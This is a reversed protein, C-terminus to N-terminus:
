VNNRRKFNLKGKKSIKKFKENYWVQNSSSLQIYKDTKNPEIFLEKKFKGCKLFKFGEINNSKVYDKEYGTYICIDYIDKYNLLFQRTFDLNNKYLPDGGLLVIKNTKNRKLEDVIMLNLDEYSTEKYGSEEICPKCLDKNQCGNCNHECGLLYISLSYGYNSPYDLFTIM